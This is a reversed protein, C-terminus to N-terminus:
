PQYTYYYKKISYKKDNTIGRTYDFKWRVDVGIELKPVKGKPVEIIVHPRWKYGSYSAPLPDAPVGPSKFGIAPLHCTLNLMNGANRAQFSVDNSSFSVGFGANLGASGSSGESGATGSLEAGITFSTTSQGVTTNPGYDYIANTAGPTLCRVSLNMSSCYYGVSLANHSFGSVSHDMIGRFLYYDKKPNNGKFKYPIFRLSWRM